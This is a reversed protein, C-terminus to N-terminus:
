RRALHLTPCLDAENSSGRLCEREKFWPAAAVRFEELTPLYYRVQMGRYNDLSSIEAPTWGPMTPPPMAEAISHWAQWVDDLLTGAGSQGHLAALLRLKLAHVSAIRRARLGDVIASLSESVAPRMFVRAAFGGRAHLVRAIEGLLRAYGQPYTMVVFGGDSAAFDLCGSRLPMACWDALLPRAGAPAIAPNWLAHIMRRSHDVALLECQEPWPAAVIEPTLGLVAARRPRTEDVLRRMFATDEAAPRMPPGFQSWQEAIRAFHDRPHDADHESM